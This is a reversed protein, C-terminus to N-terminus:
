YLLHANVRDGRVYPVTVAVDGAYQCSRLVVVGLGEPGNM